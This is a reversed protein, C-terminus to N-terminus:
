FTALEGYNRRLGEVERNRGAEARSLLTQDRMQPLLRKFDGESAAPNAAFFQSRLEAELQDNAAQQAAERRETNAKREAEDEAAWRQKQAALRAAERDQQEFVRRYHEHERANSPYIGYTEFTRQRVDM